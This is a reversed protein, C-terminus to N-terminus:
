RSKQKKKVKKMLIVIFAIYNWAQWSTLTVDFRNLLSRYSDLWANTREISYREKYLIDDFLYCDEGGGVRYNFAVNAFVGMRLCMRRFEKADFGTNANLFLGDTSIDSKTLQSFVEKVVESINYLDNHPGAVPSSITLPIGQRDTVYITNTTKQKKRGQYSQCDGGCLATTHNGDLDINSMDLFSKYRNLLTTWVTQWEGKKCWKRFHGYVTKCHLVKATFFSSVPLMYWQCGTKLKYLICQIVESLSSQCIYGRKAVSLHPLIENKITDKDLVKYM